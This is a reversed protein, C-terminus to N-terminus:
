VSQDVRYMDFYDECRSLWLKPNEGEFTPFNLKPLKGMYAFDHHSEYSRPSQKLPLPPPYSSTGKVPIPSHTFVSGFGTDRHHRDVSHGKPGDASPDPASPRETASKSIPNPFIGLDTSAGDRVSREWHRSLKGIELKVYDVKAEVQPRWEELAQASSELKEIREGRLNEAELFRKEWKADSEEFRKTLEDAVSKQIEDLLFTTNPDM